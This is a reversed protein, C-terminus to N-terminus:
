ASEFTCGEDGPSRAVKLCVTLLSRGLGAEMANRDCFVVVGDFERQGAM